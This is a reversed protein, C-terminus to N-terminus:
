MATILQVKFNRVEHAVPPKPSQTNEYILNGDIINRSFKARLEHWMVAMTYSFKIRRTHKKHPFKTAPQHVQQIIELTSTENM